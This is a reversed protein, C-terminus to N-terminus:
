EFYVCMEYTMDRRTLNFSECDMIDLLPSSVTAWYDLRSTHVGLLTHISRLPCRYETSVTKREYLEDMSIWYSFLLSSYTLWLNKLSLAGVKNWKWTVSSIKSRHLFKNRSVGWSPITTNWKISIEITYHEKHLNKGWQCKILCNINKRSLHNLLVQKSSVVMSAFTFFLMLNM